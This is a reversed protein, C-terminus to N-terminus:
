ASEPLSFTHTHNEPPDAMGASPSQLASPSRRSLVDSLLFASSASGTRLPLWPDSSPSGFGGLTLSFSSPLPPRPEFFADVSVLLFFKQQVQQRTCPSSGQPQTWPGLDAQARLRGPRHVDRGASGGVIRYTFPPLWSPLSPHAAPHVSSLPLRAHLTYAKETASGNEYPMNEVGWEKLMGYIESMWKVRLMIERMGPACIESFKDLPIDEDVQTILKSWLQPVFDYSRWYSGFITREAQQPVTLYTGLLPAFFEYMHIDQARLVLSRNFNPDGHGSDVFHSSDLERGYPLSRPHLTRLETAPAVRRLPDLCITLVSLVVTGGHDRTVSQLAAVCLAPAPTSSLAKGGREIKSADREAFRCHTAASGPPPNGAKGAELTKLAASRQNLHFHTSTRRLHAPPQPLCTAHIALPSNANEGAFRFM